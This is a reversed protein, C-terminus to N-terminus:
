AAMYSGDEALLAIHDELPIGFLNKFPLHAISNRSCVHNQANVLELSKNTKPYTLLFM